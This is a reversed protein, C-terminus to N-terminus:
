LDSYLFFTLNIMCYSQNLSYPKRQPTHPSPQDDQDRESEADSDNVVVPTDAPLGVLAISYSYMKLEPSFTICALLSLQSNSDFAVPMELFFPSLDDISESFKRIHAEITNQM